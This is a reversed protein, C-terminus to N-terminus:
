GVPTELVKELTERTQAQIEVLREKLEDFGAVGARESGVGADRLAKDTVAVMIRRLAEPATEPSFAGPEAARMIQLLGAQLSASLVLREGVSAPVVGEGTARELTELTTEGPVRGLGSLVLFQAAFECDMLGGRALKVDFVNAAAREKEIRGRMSAVDTALAKRDRVKAVLADIVASSRQM